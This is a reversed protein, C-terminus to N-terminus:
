SVLEKISDHAHKLILSLESRVWYYANMKRKSADLMSAVEMSYEGLITKIQERYFDNLEGLSNILRYQVPGSSRFISIAVKALHRTVVRRIGLYYRRSRKQKLFPKLADSLSLVSKSLGVESQM